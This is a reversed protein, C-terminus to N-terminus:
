ETGAETRPGARHGLEPTKKKKKIYTVYTIIFIIFIIICHVQVGALKEVNWLCMEIECWLIEGGANPVTVYVRVRVNVGRHEGPRYGVRYAERNVFMKKQKGFGRGGIRGGGVNATSGFRGSGAPATRIARSVRTGVLRYVWM